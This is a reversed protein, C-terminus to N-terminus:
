RKIQLVAAKWLACLKDKVYDGVSLGNKLEVVVLPSSSTSKMTNTLQENDVDGFISDTNVCSMSESKKCLISHAMQKIIEYATVIDHDTANEHCVCFRIVFRDSLSAPVMHILGSSNLKTLLSQNIEDSGKLRFCVLGM